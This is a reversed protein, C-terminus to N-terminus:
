SFLYCQKKGADTLRIRGNSLREILHTEKEFSELFREIYRRDFAQITPIDEIAFDRKDPTNCLERMINNTMITKDRERDDVSVKQWAFSM